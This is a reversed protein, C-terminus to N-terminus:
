SEEEGAVPPAAVRSMTRGLAALWVDQRGGLRAGLLSLIEREAQAVLADDEASLSREGAAGAVAHAALSEARRMIARLEDLALEFRTFEGDSWEAPPRNCVVTAVGALWAEHAGDESMARGLLARLRLDVAVSTLGAARARLAARFAEGQGPVELREGIRQEIRALLRPYARDLADLADRVAAAYAVPDRESATVTDSERNKEPSEERVRGTEDETFPALSLARPLEDFLLRLPDRASTIAERGALTTPDLARTSRTSRPLGTVRKVIARVLEIPRESPAGLADRLARLASQRAGEIRYRAVTFHDVRRLLREIVAESWDAVFTDDEFLAIEGPNALAVALFLVPAVGERLGIPPAALQEFLARLPRARGETGSLFGEIARWTPALGLPDDAPPPGFGWAGDRARHLGGRALLSAYMSAEPPDGEIGLRPLHARSLMAHLLERRAAAAASSLSRRNLLENRVRPADAYARDCVSSLGRSIGRAGTWPVRAGAYVWSVESADGAGFCREIAEDVRASAETQRASLERRAVADGALETVRDRLSEWAWWARVGDLLARAERPVGLVVTEERAAREVRALVDAHSEEGAPLVYVIRCDAGALAEGRAGDLADASSFHVDFYRLTGREIFHKRAVHPRLLARARLLESLGDISPASSLADEFRADLDVDSGEWLAYADSHRRHIVQSDAALADVAADVAGAPEPVHSLAFRLTDRSARVARSGLLGLLGVTKLVRAEMVTAAPRRALAEEIAAWRRGDPGALLSPGHAALAFDYLRDVTYFPSGEMRADELFAAFSGPSRTSLFEFLSRENQSLPGRFLGPLLLATTPHLPALRALTPGLAEPALGRTVAERAASEYPAFADAASPETRAIARSAVELLASPPDVFAVDHFRGQVKAWEARTQASLGRAYQAISQHLLTVLMVPSHESRAAREALEQLVFVDDAHSPGNAAHELSKGLEDIVVLLGAGQTAMVSAVTADFLALARKHLGRGRGERASRLDALIAKAGPGSRARVTAELGELLAEVLSGYTATLLVTAFPRGRPRARELATALSADGPSLAELLAKARPAPRDLMRALALVFSSKGVGYPGTLSWARATGAPGVGDLMRALTARAVPTLVYGDCADERASDAGVHVSRHFRRRVEFRESLRTM